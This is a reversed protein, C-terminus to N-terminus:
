FSAQNIKRSNTPTTLPHPRNKGMGAFPLTLLLLLLHYLSLTFITGCNVGSCSTHQKGGNWQYQGILNQGLLPHWPLWRSMVVLQKWPSSWYCYHPQHIWLLSARPYVLLTLVSAHTHTHTHPSSPYGHCGQVCCTRGRGGGLSRPFGCYAELSSAFCAKLSSSLSFSTEEVAEQSWAMFSM